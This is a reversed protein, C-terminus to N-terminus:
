YLPDIIIEHLKQCFVQHAQENGVSSSYGVEMVRRKVAERLEMEKEQKQEMQEM